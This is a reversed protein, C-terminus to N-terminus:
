GIILGLPLIYSCFIALFAKVTCLYEWTEEENHGEFDSKRRMPKNNNKWKEMVADLLCGLSDFHSLILDFHSIFSSSAKKINKRQNSEFKSIQILDPHIQASNGSETEFRQPWLQTQWNTFGSGIV